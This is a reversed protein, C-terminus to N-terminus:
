IDKFFRINELLILAKVDAASVSFGFIPQQCPAAAQCIDIRLRKVIVPSEGLAGHLSSPKADM